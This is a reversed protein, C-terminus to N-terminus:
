DDDYDEILNNLEQTTNIYIGNSLIKRDFEPLFVTPKKLVMSPETNNNQFINIKGDIDKMLYKYNKPNNTIIKAKTNIEHKKLALILTTLTSATIIFLIFSIIILVINRKKLKLMHASGGLRKNPNNVLKM